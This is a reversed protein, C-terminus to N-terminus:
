RCRGNRKCKDSCCDDGTSCLTNRAGCVPECHGCEECTTPIFVHDELCIIDPCLDPDVCEPAARPGTALLAWAGVVAVFLLLFVLLSKKM